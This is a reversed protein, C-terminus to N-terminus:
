RHPLSGNSENKLSDGVDANFRENMEFQNNQQFEQM